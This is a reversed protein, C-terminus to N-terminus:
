RRANANGFHSFLNKESYIENVTRSRPSIIFVPLKHSLTRGKTWHHEDHCREAAGEVNGTAIVVDDEARTTSTATTTTAAAGTSSGFCARAAAARTPGFGATCTAGRTTFAALSARSYDGRHVAAHVAAIASGRGAVSSFRVAAPRKL